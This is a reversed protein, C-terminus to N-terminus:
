IHMLITWKHKAPNEHYACGMERCVMCRNTKLRMRLIESVSKLSRWTHRDTQGDAHFLDSGSSPNEYLKSDSYEEFSQETCLNRSSQNSALWDERLRHDSCDGLSLSSVLHTNICNDEQHHACYHEFCTSSHLLHISIFFKILICPWCFTFIQWSYGRKM